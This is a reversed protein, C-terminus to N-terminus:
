DNTKELPYLEWPKPPLGSDILSNVTEEIKQLIQWTDKNNELEDILVSVCHRTLNKMSPFQFGFIAMLVYKRNNKNIIRENVQIALKMTQKDTQTLFLSDSMAKSRVVKIFQRVKEGILPDEPVFRLQQM